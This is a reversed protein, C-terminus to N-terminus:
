KRGIEELEKLSNQLEDLSMEESVKGESQPQKLQMKLEENQEYAVKYNHTLERYEKNLKENQEKLKKVISELIKIKKEYLKIDMDVEVKQEPDIKRLKKRRWILIIEALFMSFLFIGGMSVVAKIVSNRLIKKVTGVEDEFQMLRTDVEKKYNEEAESFKADIYRKYDENNAKQIDRIFQKDNDDLGLTATALLVTLFLLVGIKKM